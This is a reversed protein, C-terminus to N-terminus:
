DHWCLLKGLATSALTQRLLWSGLHLNYLPNLYQPVELDLSIFQYHGIPCQPPCHYIYVLPSILVDVLNNIATLIEPSQLM